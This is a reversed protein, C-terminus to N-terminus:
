VTTTSYTILVCYITGFLLMDTNVHMSNKIYISVADACGRTVVDSPSPYEGFTLMQTDVRM